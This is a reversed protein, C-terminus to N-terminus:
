RYCEDDGVDLAEKSLIRKLTSKEYVPRHFFIDLHQLPCDNSTGQIEILAPLKSGLEGESQMIERLRLHYRRALCVATNM